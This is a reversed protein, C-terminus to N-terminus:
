QRELTWTSWHRRAPERASITWGGMALTEALAVRVMAHTVLVITDHRAALEDLERAAATLREREHPAHRPGGAVRRMLSNVGVALAWLPLPMRLGIRLAHLDLERFLPSIVPERGPVLVRASEVARRADSSLIVAASSALTRLQSPPADDAAVGAAEYADRWRVFGDHDIWGRHTHASRGHRVLVIRKM